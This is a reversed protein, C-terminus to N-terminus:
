QTGESVEQHRTAGIRVADEPGLTLLLSARRGLAPQGPDSIYAIRIDSMHTGINRNTSRGEGSIDFDDHIVFRTWPICKLYYHSKVFPKNGGQKLFGRSSM